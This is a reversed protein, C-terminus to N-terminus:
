HARVTKSETVTESIGNRFVTVTLTLRYDYGRAVVQSSEWRWTFSQTRMNNWSGVSTFTGNANARELVASVTISETGFNGDVSAIINLQGNEITLHTGISLINTWFPVIEIYGSSQSQSVSEAHVYKSPIAALM